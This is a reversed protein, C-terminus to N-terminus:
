MYMRTSELLQLYDEGKMQKYTFYVRMGCSPATAISVGRIFAYLPKPACLIGKGPLGTFDRIFPQNAMWASAPTGMDNPMVEFAVVIGPKSEDMSTITNDTCLGAEISDGVAIILELTSALFYFEVRHIIWAVKELITMGSVIETFGILSASAGNVLAYTINVFEDKVAM